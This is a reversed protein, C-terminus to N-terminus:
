SRQAADECLGVYQPISAGLHFVIRRPGRRSTVRAVARLSARDALWGFTSVFSVVAVFAVDQRTHALLALAGSLNVPNRGMRVPKEASNTHWLRIVQRMVNRISRM